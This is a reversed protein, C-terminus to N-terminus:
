EPVLDTAFAGSARYCQDMDPLHMPSRTFCLDVDFRGAIRPETGSLRLAEVTVGGEPFVLPSVWYDRWGEPLFLIRADHPMSGGPPLSLQVVLRADGAVGEFSVADVSMFRTFGARSQPANLAFDQAIDQFRFQLAPEAAASVAGSVLVVGALVIRRM